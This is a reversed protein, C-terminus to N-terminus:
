FEIVRPKEWKLPMDNRRHAELLEGAPFIGFASPDSNALAPFDLTSSFGSTFVSTHAGGVAIVRSLFRDIKAADRIRASPVPTQRLMPAPAPDFTIPRAGLIDTFTFFGESDCCVYPREGNGRREYPALLASMQDVTLPATLPFHARLEGGDMRISQLALAPSSERISPPEQARDVHNRNGILGSLTLGASATEMVTQLMVRRNMM